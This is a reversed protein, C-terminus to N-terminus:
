GLDLGYSTALQVQFMRLGSVVQLIAVTHAGFVLTM